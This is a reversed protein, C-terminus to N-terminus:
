WVLTNYIWGVDGDSHEIKLWNGKKALVKFPVGKEVVFVLSNDTGPGKRVNCQSKVTIVSRVKGVLSDHVWGYDDEFDKFRYWNGKKEIVVIPHYQEVQWLVDHDTGPGSRINAIKSTIGLRDGAMLYGPAAFLVMAALFGALLASGKNARCSKLRKM